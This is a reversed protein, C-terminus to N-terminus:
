VQTNIGASMQDAPSLHLIYGQEPHFSFNSYNFGADATLSQVAELSSIICKQIM